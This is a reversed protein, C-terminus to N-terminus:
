RMFIQVSLTAVPDVASILSGFMLAELPSSTDIHVIEALGIAYVLYGIIITSIITGFVAYLSVTWFNAFFDKKRLSYGAEFIIPPLLLFFFMQPEFSLFEMEEASPYIAKALCGVIIGVLIACGSEPLYYFSNQKILYASLICLGLIVVLLLTNLAGFEHAADGASATSSMFPSPILIIYNNVLWIAFKFKSKQRDMISFWFHIVFIHVNYM